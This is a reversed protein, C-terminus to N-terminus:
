SSSVVAAAQVAETVGTESMRSRFVDWHERVDIKEVYVFRFLCFIM